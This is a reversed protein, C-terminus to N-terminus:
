SSPTASTTSALADSLLADPDVVFRLRLLAADIDEASFLMIEHAALEETFAAIEDKPLRCVLAAAVSAPLNAASLAKSLSARREVLKGSKTAIDAVRTTCEVVLSRGAPTTVVIDPSDTEIPVAASFGLMFLIAAVAQEFKRSEPADFLAQRVMRLDPDFQNIAIFRQNRAKQPDIIWQRRVTADDLSLLVLVSDSNPLTINLGGVRRSDEPHSWDIMHAVQKRTALGEGPAARVALAVKSLDLSPHAHITAKLTNEALLTADFILDVPPAVGLTIAPARSGSFDANLGLCAALDSTGDFPPDSTRLAADLAAVQTNSPPRGQNTSVRLHLPCFWRDRHSMESYHDLGDLGALSLTRHGLDIRGAAAAELIAIAEAKAVPFRQQMGAELEGTSVTFGTDRGHQLPWLSISAELLQLEGDAKSAIYRIDLAYDDCLWGAAAELFSTVLQAGHM